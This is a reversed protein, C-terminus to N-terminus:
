YIFPVVRSFIISLPDFLRNPLLDVILVKDHERLTLSRFYGEIIADHVAM